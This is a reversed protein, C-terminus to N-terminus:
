LFIGEGSAGSGARHAGNRCNGAHRSARRRGHAPFAVMNEMRRRPSFAGSGDPPPCHRADPGFAIDATSDTLVDPTNGVAINRAACAAVDINDLGVAMQSVVKLNPAADLLEADIRDTLMCLLGDAGAINAMLAARPIPRDEEWVSVDAADRAIQMAAEPLQRTLYVKM